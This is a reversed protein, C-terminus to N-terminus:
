RLTWVARVSGCVQCLVDAERPDHEQGCHSCRVHGVLWGGKLTKQDKRCSQWPEIRVKWHWVDQSTGCRGCGVTTHLRRSREKYTTFVLSHGAAEQEAIWEGHDGIFREQRAALGATRRATKEAMRQGWRESRDGM